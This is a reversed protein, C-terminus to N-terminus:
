AHSLGPHSRQLREAEQAVFAADADSDDGRLLHNVHAVVLPTSWAPQTEILARLLAISDPGGSVAVVLGREAGPTAALQARVAEILRDRPETVVLRRIKPAACSM